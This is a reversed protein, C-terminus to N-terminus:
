LLLMLLLGESPAIQGGCHFDRNMWSFVCKKLTGFEMLPSLKGVSTLKLPPNAAMLGTPHVALNEQLRSIATFNVNREAVARTSMETALVSKSAAM